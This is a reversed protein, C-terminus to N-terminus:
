QATFGGDVRLDTGTILSAEDSALFVAATAVQEPQGIGLPQVSAAVKQAEEYGGLHEVVSSSMPTDIWGPCVVNARIGDRAHELAVSKTFMLVGGKSACYHAYQPEGVFSNVSGINVISGGGAKLMEPLAYKTTLFVGKLNVDIVRDWDAETMDIVPSAIFIGANNCLIDLKGFREVAADVLAKADAAKSSDAQIAFAAGGALAETERLAAMNRSTSIILRAGERAFAVAIARGIGTAAGTVIAVKGELRGAREM